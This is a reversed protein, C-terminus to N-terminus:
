FFKHGCNGCFRVGVAMKYRCEPCVQVEAPAGAPAGGHGGGVVLGGGAGPTIVTTSRGEPRQAFAKAVDAMKDLAQNALREQRDANERNARESRELMAQTNRELQTHHAAAAEALAQPGLEAAPMNILDRAACVAETITVALETGPPPILEASPRDQQKHRLWRYAGLRWGLVAESPNAGNGALHWKTGAPLAWPAAGFHWPSADKGIGIAAGALGHMAPLLAIEGPKAAFGIARLFAASPAELAALFGPVEDASVAYLPLSANGEAAKANAM